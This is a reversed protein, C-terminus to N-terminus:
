RDAGLRALWARQEPTDPFPRARDFADRVQAARLTSLLQAAVPGGYRRALYAGAVTGTRGRGGWCHVYVGDDTADIAAFAAEVQRTTPVTTDPVPVQIHTVAAPLLHKYPRLGLGNHTREDPETLDVFTTIGANLLAVIKERPPTSQRRARISALSSATM